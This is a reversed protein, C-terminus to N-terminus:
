SVQMDGRIPINYLFIVDNELGQDLDKWPGCIELIYSGFGSIFITLKINLEKIIRAVVVARYQRQTM